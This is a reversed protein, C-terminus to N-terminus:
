HWVSSGAYEISHDIGDICQDIGDKESYCHLKQTVAGASSLNSPPFADETTTMGGCASVPALLWCKNSRKESTAIPMTNTM